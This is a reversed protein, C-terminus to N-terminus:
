GELYLCVENFLFLAEGKEIDSDYSIWTRRGTLDKM